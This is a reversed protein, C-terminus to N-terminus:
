CKALPAAADLPSPASATPATPRPGSLAPFRETCPMTPFPWGPCGPSAPKSPGIPQEPPLTAAVPNDTNPHAEKWAVVRNRGAARQGASMVKDLQIKLDAALSGWGGKSEAALIVWKYAEALDAPFDDGGTAWILALRYRAGVYNQAAARQYWYDARHYDQKLDGSGLEYLSGLGFQADAEGRDAASQWDSMARAYDGEEYAARGAATDAHAVAVTAATGATPRDACSTTFVAVGALQFM